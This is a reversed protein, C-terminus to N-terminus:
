EVKIIHKLDINDSLDKKEKGGEFDLEWDDMFEQGLDEFVMEFDLEGAKAVDFISNFERYEKETLRKDPVFNM